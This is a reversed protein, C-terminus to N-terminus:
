FVKPPLRIAKKFLLIPSIYNYFLLSVIYFFLTCFSLWIAIKTYNISITPAIKKGLGTCSFFLILYFVTGLGEYIIVAKSYRKNFYNFLLIFCAWIIYINLIVIMEIPTLLHNDVSFSLLFYTFFAAFFMWLHIGHFYRLLLFHFTEYKNIPFICINFRDLDKMGYRFKVASIYILGFFLTLEPYFFLVQHGSFWMLAGILLPMFVFLMKHRIKINRFEVVM